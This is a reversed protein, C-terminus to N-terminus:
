ANRREKRYKAPLHESAPALSWASARAERKRYLKGFLQDVIGVALRQARDRAAAGTLAAPMGEVVYKGSELAARVAAHDFRLNWRAALRRREVLEAHIAALDLWPLWRKFNATIDQAVRQSTSQVEARQLSTSTVGLGLSVRVPQGVAKLWAAGIADAHFDKQTPDVARVTRLFGKPAPLAPHFPCEIGETETIGSDKLEEVFRQLYESKLGYIYATQLPRLSDPPPALRKGDGNVGAFRIVRGFMQVILSGEKQGLRLLTMSSARFNDWGEAFRRSGILLNVGTGDQDLRRFLSPTFADGDVAIRQEELAKKLGSVDGVNVVGYWHVEAGRQLGLGMEGPAMGLTRFVPTDGRQWDFVGALVENALSRANSHQLHTAVAEPLLEHLAASAMDKLSTIAAPLNNPESLLALLWQLVTVVDATQAKDDKNKGGIVHLGLLLWLPDAVQLNLRLREQTTDSDGWARRQWWYALLAAALTTDAAVAAAEGHGDTRTHRFDKGYRDAHFRDYAYDFVVSKAYTELAAENEAVQGFTASFEVLLGRHKDQPDGIGALDRQLKKWLSAESKQGKHGEDVFVLNRGDKFRSTPITQGEGSAQEGLKNIDLVVISAAPLHGLAAADGDDPYVFVDRVKAPARLARLRSAHQRSLSETPTIIFIRDWHARPELMALCAHLVHTKGSATAMWFAVTQLDDRTFDAITERGRAPLAQQRERFAALAANAVELLAAEDAWRLELWHAFLFLALYQAYRPVFGAAVCADKVAGDLADLVVADASALSGIADRWRNEELARLASFDDEVQACAAVAAEPKLGLSGALANRLVLARKLRQHGSM